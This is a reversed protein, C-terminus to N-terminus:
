PAAPSPALASAAAATPRSPTSTRTDLRRIEKELKDMGSSSNAATSGRAGHKDFLYTLLNKKEDALGDLLAFLHTEDRLVLQAAIISAAASERVILSSKDNLASILTGKLRPLEEEAIEAPLRLIFKGLAILGFAYATSKVDEDCFAPHPEARFARLSAHMTTLGYVPEINACLADRLTNTAELVNLKNCYRVRLLVSFLDSERGELYPGQNELMEWLLILGYEIEEESRTPELFQLLANFLRDFNKNAEWLDANLSPLSQSPSFPSPSNPLGIGPSLPPSVAASAMNEISFLALKQLVHISSDGETLASIYGQLEKAKDAPQTARLPTGQAVLAKRKLWWGTEHKKGQLVDMFSSSQGNRAPSDQFMAAQRMIAASRNVPTVPPVARNQTIPLPTPKAKSKGLTHGIGSGLLLSPPITSHQLGEEEPDVLELLREAASEAQEARARLADEVVPRDGAMDAISGSSLANSVATPKSDISRPSMSEKGGATKTQPTSPPFMEYPASFSMLNISHDGESDSDDDPIPVTQAMLLSEDDGNLMQLSVRSRRAPVPVAAARANGNANRPTSSAQAASSPPSAPLATQLAKRITSPRNVSTASTALPSSARRRSTSHETPSPPTAARVSGSSGTSPSRSRSTPAATSSVSRAMTGSTTRSRGVPGSAPPSSSMRLPSAPRVPSTKSSSGPSATRKSTSVYSGSTAQHRLTPPATAIAKAKARSAAIAAAVSSKKVNKPTTPPLVAMMEPKPCAKEVQKRAISDLGDLIALGREPWVEQFVWFLIRANERVAPNADAIAKKLSKELLDLGGSGEIINKSRHGHVEVYQKLHAVVFARSQVTKDQLTNWLLPLIIRPQASTRNIISTVAAQSQQATIKKTFGAMKLLNTLLTDCFPDLATGLAAALESYLFTTNAAVTTRLSALTKLSWQLFGEKLSALFVDSYRLHVDGKLMGRVRIIAQDRAAWNHETEKGEFPKLMAAFESELDKTSAIYVPQIDASESTPNQTSSPAVSPPAVAARSSPRSIDRANGQSATRSTGSGQSDVTPRRGLLLLSPPIYEKPKTSPADGNESGDRSQPNSNVSSGLLKSLVGDVITKRVGKKTMEKKLDARAADTVGPGTFLEIVAQRACDRVHADTDELGDVLLSLYPRIPFQHHARRIHVLTLISQERVKWVKSGLGAERLYREFIMLPTEPGKDRSKASMASSGGARFALGGLIVLTERAKLQAKEKDGLREIVGGSPLLANLLQRLTAADVVGSPNVSSTSSSPSRPQSSSRQLHSGVSRTIVLPLLPPLVALTATTLHQNSTRLCAKLVNLLSDLDKIEVGSEFEGQLKTLSDVKVDVDNSKCQNVLREIRSEGPDM